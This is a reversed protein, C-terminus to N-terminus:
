RTPQSLFPHPSAGEGRIPSSHLLSYLHKILDPDFQTGAAARLIRYAVQKRKEQLEIASIDIADFADAVSLIRAGLPIFAGRLGYPYGTGDWREHHHAIFVAADKLFHFPALLEAGVRSHCQVAIYEHSNLPGPKSLLSPPLTLLGIDHLLSSLRLTHLIDASLGLRKGIAVAMSATRRGHGHQSPLAQDLERTVQRVLINEVNWRYDIPLQLGDIKSLLDQIKALVPHISQSIVVSM